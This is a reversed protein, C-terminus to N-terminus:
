NSFFRLMAETFSFTQLLKLSFFLLLGILRSWSVRIKVVRGVFKLLGKIVHVHSQLRIHQEM